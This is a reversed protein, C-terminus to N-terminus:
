EEYPNYIEPFPEPRAGGSAYKLQKATEGREFLNWAKIILAAMVIQPIKNTKSRANESLRKRLLTVPDYENTTVGTSLRSWFCWADESNINNFEFSLLNIVSGNIDLDRLSFYIKRALKMEEIIEDSHSMFYKYLVIDSISTTAVRGRTIITKLDLGKEDRLYKIRTIAALHNAQSFGAIEIDNTLTRTGRRDTVLQADEGVGWTVLTRMPVGTEKVSFLRNQGDSLTGDAAFSIKSVNPDWLGNLLAEKLGPVQNYVGMKRNKTNNELASEAREPTFTVYGTIINSDDPDVIMQGRNELMWGIVDAKTVM